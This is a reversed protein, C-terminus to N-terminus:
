TYAFSHHILFSDTILYPNGAIHLEVLVQYLTRTFSTNNKMLLLIFFSIGSFAFSFILFFLM